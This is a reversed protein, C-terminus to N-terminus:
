PHFPCTVTVDGADDVCTCFPGVNACACSPTGADCPSNFPLCFYSPSSGGDPGPPGYSVECFSTAPDCAVPCFTAGDTQADGGADTQADAGTSSDGSTAGDAATGDPGHGTDGSAGDAGGTADQSAAADSSGNDTSSSSGCATVLALFAAPAVSRVPLM